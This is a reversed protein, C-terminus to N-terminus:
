KGSFNVTFTLLSKKGNKVQLIKLPIPETWTPEGYVTMLKKLSGFIGTSVCQYGVGDKDILVIRPAETTEGTEENVCQVIEAFIDTILLTENIKDSLRYTPNNMIEFLKAKEAPTSAKYTCFANGSSTLNNEISIMEVSTNEM